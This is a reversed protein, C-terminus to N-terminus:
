EVLAKKVVGYIREPERRYERWWRAAVHVDKGAGKWGGTVGRKCRENQFWKKIQGASLGTEYVLVISVMAQPYPTEKFSKHLMELQQPTKRNARPKGSEIYHTLLAIVKPALFLTKTGRAARNAFYRGIEQSSIFPGVLMCQVTAYSCLNKPRPSLSLCCLSWLDDLVLQQATNPKFTGFLCHSRPLDRTRIM